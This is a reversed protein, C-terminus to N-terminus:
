NVCNDTSNQAVTDHSSIEWPTAFHVGIGASFTNLICFKDIEINQMWSDYREFGFVLFIWLWPPPRWEREGEGLIM